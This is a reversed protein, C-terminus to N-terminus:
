VLKIFFHFCDSEKARIGDEANNASGIFFDPCVQRLNSRSSVPLIIPMIIPM